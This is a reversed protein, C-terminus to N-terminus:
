GWGSDDGTEAEARQPAPGGWGSDSEGAAVRTHQETPPTLSAAGTICAGALLLSALSKRLTRTM